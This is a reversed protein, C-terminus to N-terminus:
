ELSLPYNKEGIEIGRIEDASIEDEFVFLLRRGDADECFDYPPYQHNDVNLFIRNEFMKLDGINTLKLIIARPYVVASQIVAEYGEYNVAQELDFQCKETEPVDFEYELGDVVFKIRDASNLNWFSFSLRESFGPDEVILAGIQEAPEASLDPTDFILEKGTGGEIKRLIIQYVPSYDNMDVLELCTKEPLEAGGESAETGSAHESELAIVNEKESVSDYTGEMASLSESANAPRAAFSCGQVALATFCLVLWMKKM